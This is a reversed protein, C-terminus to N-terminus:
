RGINVTYENEGDYTIGDLGCEPTIHEGYNLHLYDCLQSASMSDSTVFIFSGGGGSFSIRVNAGSPVTLFQDDTSPPEDYAGIRRQFLRSM